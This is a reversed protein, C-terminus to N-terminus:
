VAAQGDVAAREAARLGLPQEPPGPEARAAPLGLPEGIEPEVFRYVRQCM